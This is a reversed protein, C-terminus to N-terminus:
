LEVPRFCIALFSSRIPRVPLRVTFYHLRHPIWAVLVLRIASISRFRGLTVAELRSLFIVAVTRRVISARDPDVEAARDPDVEQVPGPDLEAEQDRDQVAERVQVPDSALFALRGSGPRTIRALRTATSRTIGVPFRIYSRRRTFHSVPRKRLGTSVNGVPFERIRGTMM